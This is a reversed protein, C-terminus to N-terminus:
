AEENEISDILKKLQGIYVAKITKGHDPIPIVKGFPKYVIAWQHNGRNVVECGYHKAIKKIEDLTMDNPTPRRNLKDILNEVQSM